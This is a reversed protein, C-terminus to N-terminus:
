YSPMETSVARMGVTRAECHELRFQTPHPTCIPQTFGQVLPGQVILDLNLLDSCTWPHPGTCLPHPWSGTCLPGPGQEPVSTCNTPPRYFNYMRLLVCSTLM